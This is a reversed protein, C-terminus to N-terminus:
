ETQNRTELIVKHQRHSPTTAPPSLNSFLIYLLFLFNLLLHHICSLLDSSVSMKSHQLAEAVYDELHSAQMDNKLCTLYIIRGRNRVTDGNELRDQQEQTPERLCEIACSLSHFVSYDNEDKKSKPPPGVQALRINLTSITDPCNWPNLAASGAVVRIHKERPYIDFVIRLYEQLGEVNCTWLSKYIPAAPIVGSGKSKLIDYDMPQNCSQAFYSSRDLIFVTKHSVPFTM